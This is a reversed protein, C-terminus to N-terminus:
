NLDTIFDPAIEAGAVLVLRDTSFYVHVIWKNYTERRLHASHSRGDAIPKATM